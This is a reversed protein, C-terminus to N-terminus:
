LADCKRHTCYNDLIVHLERDSPSHAVIQDMFQPFETRRKLTTKNTKIEGTAVQLAAFLNLTGRQVDGTVGPNARSAALRPRIACAM